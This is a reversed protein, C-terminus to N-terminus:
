TITGCGGQRSKAMYIACSKLVHDKSNGHETQIGQPLEM